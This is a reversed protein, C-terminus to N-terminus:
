TRLRVLEQDLWSTHALGTNAASPCTLRFARGFSRGTNELTVEVAPVVRASGSRLRCSCCECHEREHRAALPKAPRRLVGAARDRGQVARTGVDGQRPGLDAITTRKYARPQVARLGLERLLDAVPRRQVRPGRPEASCGRASLGLHAAFRRLGAQRARGARSATGGDPHRDPQALLLVVLASRRASRVDLHDQLQGEEGRHARLAGSGLRGPSSPRPKKLFENEMRLRRNEEELENM